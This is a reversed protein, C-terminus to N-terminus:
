SYKKVCGFKEKLIQRIYYFCSTFTKMIDAEFSMLPDWKTM